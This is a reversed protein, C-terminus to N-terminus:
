VVNTPTRRAATCFRCMLSEQGIRICLQRPMGENKLFKHSNIMTIDQPPQHMHVKTTFSCVHNEQMDVETQKIQWPSTIYKYGSINLNKKAHNHKEIRILDYNFLVHPRINLAKLM